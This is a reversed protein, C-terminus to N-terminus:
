LASVGNVSTQCSLYLLAKVHNLRFWMSSTTWFFSKSNNATCYSVNWGAHNQLEALAKKLLDNKM